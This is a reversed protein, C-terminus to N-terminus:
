WENLCRFCLNHGFSPSPILNATQSGVVFLQSDVQNVQRCLAHSMGKSLEWCSSCSQKLGCRLWLDVQLTIPSWLRLLGLKPSKLVGVQSDWSLFVNPHPNRPWGYLISYPPLHHSGGLRPRPSDQTDTNSTVRRLVLLAIITKDRTIFKKPLNGVHIPTQKVELLCDKLYWAFMYRSM